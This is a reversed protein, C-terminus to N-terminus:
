RIGSELLDHTPGLDLDCWLLCIRGKSVGWCSSVAVGGSLQYSMFLHRHLGTKM